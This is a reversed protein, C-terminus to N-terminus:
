FVQNEGEKKEKRMCAPKRGQPAYSHSPPSVAPTRLDPIRRTQTPSVERRVPCGPPFQGSRISHTVPSSSWLHSFYKHLIFFFGVGVIQFLFHIVKSSPNTYKVINLCSLSLCTKGNYSTSLKNHVFMPAFLFFDGSFLSYELLTCNGLFEVSTSYCM